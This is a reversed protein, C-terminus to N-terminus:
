QTRTCHMDHHHIIARGACTMIFHVSKFAVMGHHFVCVQICVMYPCHRVPDALVLISIYPHRTKNESTHIDQKTKQHISTKNQKRIYPHRTKNESTHIDQKTKQHISTKNQKRIYPHRTKNESTHTDQKTKQHISTKNQKRCRAGGIAARNTGATATQAALLTLMGRILISHTSAHLQTSASTYFEPSGAETHLKEKPLLNFIEPM